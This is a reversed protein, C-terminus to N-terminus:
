SSSNDFDKDNDAGKKFFVKAVFPTVAITIPFRLPSTVKHAVYAIAAVSAADSVNDLIAPRRLPTSALWDAVHNTLVSVDVGIYVLFYFCSFSILSLGMSTAIYAGGYLAALDKATPQKGPETTAM